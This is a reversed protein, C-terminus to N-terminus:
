KEKPNTIKPSNKSWLKKCAWYRAGLKDKAESCNHRAKFAKRAKDSYNSKMYADGFHILKEKGDQCAKVMKKKEPKSSPVPKNCALRDKLGKAAKRRESM